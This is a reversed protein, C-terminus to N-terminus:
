TRPDFDIRPSQLTINPHRWEPCNIQKEKGLLVTYSSVPLFLSQDFIYTFNSWFDCMPLQANLWRPTWRNEDLWLLSVCMMWNIFDLCVNFQDWLKVLLDWCMHDPKLTPFWPRPCVVSILLSYKNISVEPDWIQDKKPEGQMFSM